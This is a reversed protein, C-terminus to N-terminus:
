IKDYGFNIFDDNFFKNIFQLSEFDYYKMPDGYNNTINRKNNLHIVNFNCIKLLAFLDNELNEFKGIYDFKVGEMHLTQSTFIHNYIIGSFIERNDILEKITLNKDVLGVQVMYKWASIFRHYPNRVFTFKFYSNLDLKTLNILKLIEDNYYYKVVPLEKYSFVCKNYEFCLHNYAIFYYNRLLVHQIYTGATKPIHIYLIKKDFNLSAM